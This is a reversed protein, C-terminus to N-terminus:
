TTNQLSRIWSCLELEMLTLQTEIRHTPFDIGQVSEGGRCKTCECRGKIRNVASCEEVAEGTSM